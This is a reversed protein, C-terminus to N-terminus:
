RLEQRVRAIAARESDTLERLGFRALYYLEAWEVRGARAALERPTEGPGRVFGDAKLRREVERWWREAEAAAARINRSAGRRRRSFLFAVLAAPLLVFAAAGLARKADVGHGRLDRLEHAFRHGTDFGAQVAQFQDLINYEVVRQTWVQKLYDWARRLKGSGASALGSGPTPDFRVWGAGDFPVEVWSHANSKRVLWYGGFENREGGHFGNAMRAPIGVARLMMVMGSSFQECYGTRSDLLFSAIPDDRKAAPPALSYTWSQMASEIRRARRFASGEGALSRALPEIDAALQPPIQLYRDPSRGPAVAALDLLIKPDDDVPVSSIVYHTRGFRRARFFLSDTSNRSVLPLDGRVEVIQALGFLVSVDLPELTIDQVTVAGPEDKVRFTALGAGHADGALDLPGMAGAIRQEIPDSVTWHGKDYHDLAIGRWYFSGPDVRAGSLTVRMVPSPDQIVSGFQGLQVDESFGSIGEAQLIGGSFASLRLRPLAAFLSVTALFIAGGAGLAIWAMRRPVRADAGTAEPDSLNRFVATWTGVLCFLFVAALFEIRITLVAAAMLTLLAILLVQGSSGERLALLRNAQLIVLLDIGGLLWSGSLIGHAPVVALAFLFTLLGTRLTEPARRVPASRRRLQVVAVAIAALLAIVPLPGVPGSTALAFLGVLASAFAGGIAARRVDIEGRPRGRGGPPPLPHPVERDLREFGAARASV